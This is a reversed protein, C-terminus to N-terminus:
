RDEDTIVGTPEGEIVVHRYGLEDALKLGEEIAEDRSAFSASLDERDAVRNVWQGRKDLTEVVGTESEDLSAPDFADGSQEQAM